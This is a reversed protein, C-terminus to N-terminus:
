RRRITPPYAFSTDPNPPVPLSQTRHQNLFVLMLFFTNIFMGIFEHINIHHESEDPHPTQFAPLSRFHDNHLRWQFPLSTCYGGMAINCADLRGEFHPDRPILLGLPRIWIPDDPDRLISHLHRLASASHSNLHVTRFSGWARRLQRKFDEQSKSSSTCRRVYNNLTLQFHIALHNGFPLIQGLNRMKGLIRALTRVNHVSGTEWTGDDLLRLLSERHYTPYGVTM